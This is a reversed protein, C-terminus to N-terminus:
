VECFTINATDKYKWNIGDKSVAIGIRTGHVWRVGVTDTTNAARRNTYLMWWQKTKKNWVIVPDAAGDHVPDSYLPNPAPQQAKLDAPLQYICLLALWYFIRKM